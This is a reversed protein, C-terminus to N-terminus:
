ESRTPKRFKDLLFRRRTRSREHGLLFGFPRLGEINDCLIKVMGLVPIAVIMGPIGWLIEGLVIAIITFLPNLHVQTGVVLPELLYTQIFQVIAYVAVIILIMSTGGGQALAMALALATGVLNGAFPVIELTGCIVAFMVPHELGALSFGISYMIWLCAIMKALGSIYGYSVRSSEHIILEANARKDHPVLILVFTKLHGRFYLFLFTYVLTLISSILIDTLTRLVDTVIEPAKDTKTATTVLKNADTTSMGLTEKVFQRVERTAQKISTTFQSIEQELDSLQWGILYITTAICLVILLVGSLAALWKPCGRMEMRVANKLWLMALLVGFVIPMLFEKALIISATLLFLLLMILVAKSLKATRM